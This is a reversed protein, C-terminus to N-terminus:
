TADTVEVGAPVDAPAPPQALRKELDVAMWRMAEFMDINDPTLYRQGLSDKVWRELKCMPSGDSYGHERLLLAYEQGSASWQHVIRWSGQRPTESM